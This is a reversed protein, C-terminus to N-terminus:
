DGYSMDEAFADHPSNGEEFSMGWTEYSFDPQNKETFGHEEFIQKLETAWEQFNMGKQARSIMSDSERM